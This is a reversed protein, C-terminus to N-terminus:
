VDQAEIEECIEGSVFFTPGTTAAFVYVLISGAGSNLILGDQLNIRITSGVQPVASYAKLWDINADTQASATANVRVTLDTIATTRFERSMNQPTLATGAASYRNATDMAVAIKIEGGAVTGTQSLEISRLAHRTTGGAAKYFILFPTTAVLSTQATYSAPAAATQDGFTFLKGARSPTFGLDRDQAYIKGSSYSRGM